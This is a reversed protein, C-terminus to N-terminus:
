KAGAATYSLEKATICQVKYQTCIYAVQFWLM